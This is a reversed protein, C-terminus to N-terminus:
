VTISDTCVHGSFGSYIWGTRKVVDDDSPNFASLYETVVGVTLIKEIAEVIQDGPSLGSTKRPRKKRIMCM